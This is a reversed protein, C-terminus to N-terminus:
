WDCGLELLLRMLQNGGLEACLASSWSLGPLPLWAHLLVPNVHGVSCSLLGLEPRFASSGLLDFGAICAGLSLEATPLAYLPGLEASPLAHFSGLEATPLAHLLSLERRWANMASNGEERWSPVSWL